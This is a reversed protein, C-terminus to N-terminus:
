PARMPRRRIPETPSSSPVSAFLSAFSSSQSGMRFLAFTATNLFIVGALRMEISWASTTDKQQEREGLEVLLEQYADMNTMQATSYGEFMSLKFVVTMIKELIVFAFCLKKKYSEIHKDLFVLPVLSAYTRKMTQYDSHFNFTPISTNNPNKRRLVEFKHLLERKLDDLEFAQMNVENLNLTNVRKPLGSELESLPPPIKVPVNTIVPEPAKFLPDKFVNELNATRNALYEKYVPSSAASFNEDDNDDKKNCIEQDLKNYTDVLQQSPVVTTEDIIPTYDSTQLECMPLDIKLEQEDDSDLSPVVNLPEIYKLNSQPEELSLPVDIDVPSSTEITGDDAVSDLKYFQPLEFEAIDNSRKYKNELLELYMIPQEAYHHTMSDLDMSGRPLKNVKYVFQQRKGRFVSGVPVTNAM